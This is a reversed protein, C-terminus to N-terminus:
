SRQPWSPKLWRSTSSRKPNRPRRRKPSSSLRPAARLRLDVATTGRYYDREALLVDPGAITFVAVRRGRLGRLEIRVLEGGRVLAYGGLFLDDTQLM